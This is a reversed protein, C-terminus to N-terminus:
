RALDNAVAKVAAQADSYAKRYSGNFGSDAYQIYAQFLDALADVFVAPQTGSKPNAPSPSFHDVVAQLDCGSLQRNAIWGPAAGPADGRWSAYAFTRSLPEDIVEVAQLSGDAGHFGVRTGKIVYTSFSASPVPNTFAANFSYRGTVSGTSNILVQVFLTGLQVREIRLDEASGPWTWGTPLTGPATDWLAGFTTSDLFGNTLNSPLNPGLSSLIMVRAHAPAISGASGQTYAPRSGTGSGVRFGDDFLVRRSGFPTALVQEASWGLETALAAAFNTPGPISATRVVRSRLADAISELKKQETERLSRTIQRIAPPTLAALTITMIALAGVMELLTFGRSRRASRRAPSPSTKM